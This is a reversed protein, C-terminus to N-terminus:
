KPRPVSKIAGLTGYQIGGLRALPDIRVADINYRASIAGDARTQQVLEVVDDALFVREIEVFVLLQPAGQVQQTSHLRCGFAVAVDRIRPLPFYEFEVLDLNLNALESESAPLTRSSETVAEAHRSSPIHIVCYPNVLLNARTDKAEGPSKEGVSFMLLPPESSVATFYSFPALNHHGDTHETLVWAIPRPLVTQTMLHYIASANHSSLDLNM